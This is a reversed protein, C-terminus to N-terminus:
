IKLRDIILQDISIYPDLQPQMMHYGLAWNRVETPSM